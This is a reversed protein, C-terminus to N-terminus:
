RRRSRSRPRCRASARLSASSLAQLSRQRNDLAEDQRRAYDSVFPIAGLVGAVIVCAVISILAVGQTPHAANEAILYATALHAVDGLLFIWKPLKPTDSPLNM